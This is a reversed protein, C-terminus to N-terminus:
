PFFIVFTAQPEACVNAHDVLLELTQVRKGDTAGRSYSKSRSIGIYTSSLRKINSCCKESNIQGHM